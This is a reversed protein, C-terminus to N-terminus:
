IEIGHKRILLEVFDLKSKITDLHGVIDSLWLKHLEVINVEPLHGTRQLHLLIKEYEELENLMHSIFTPTFKNKLSRSEEYLAFAMKKPPFIPGMTVGVWFFPKRIPPFLFLNAQAVLLPFQQAPYIKDAVLLTTWLEM